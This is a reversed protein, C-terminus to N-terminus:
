WTGGCDSTYKYGKEYEYKVGERESIMKLRGVVDERSLPSFRFVACRSQIPEIIKSSYNAMLIFRTTSVYMEMLRRLAQQADATMNDAEDLIVVKFPIEGVIVSRAFEKVKTRIVDISREDSANMELVYRRYDEGYLDHVLALAVTTEELGRRGQSFYIPCIRRRLL